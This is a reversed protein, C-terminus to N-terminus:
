QEGPDIYEYNSTNNDDFNFSEQVNDTNNDGVWSTRDFATYETSYKGNHQICPAYRGCTVDYALQCVGLSGNYPRRAKGCTIKVLNDGSKLREMIIGSDCFNYFNASGAVEYLSPEIYTSDSSPKRPHAVLIVFIDLKRTAFMLKKLVEAIKQTESAGPVIPLDLYIFPDVVLLKIGYCRVARNALAIIYNPDSIDESLFSIKGKIFHKAREYEETLVYKNGFDKGTLISIMEAEHYEQPQKEPSFFLTRWQYRRLMCMVIYNVFTSKGSGPYGTVLMLNGSQFHILDDFGELGIKLGEPIGNIFLKDLAEDNDGALKIDDSSLKEAEGVCDRLKRCGQSMLVENADKYGCGALQWSVRCVDMTNFTEVFKDALELGKEDTDGAFVIYRFNDEIHKRYRDFVSMRSGAGNPVSIVYKYGCEMMALADMMGETVYLPEDDTKKKEFICRINWPIMKAGAEFMFRKEQIDAFKYQVNVVKGNEDFFPFAVWHLWACGKWTLRSCIGAKRAVSESIGRDNLYNLTDLDMPLLHQRIDNIECKENERHNNKGYNEAFFEPNNDIKFRAKCHHCYGVGASLDWAVSPDDPHDREMSCVPCASRAKKSTKNRFNIEKDSIIFLDNSIQKM